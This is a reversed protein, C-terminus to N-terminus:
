DRSPRRKEPGRRASWCMWCAARSSSTRYLPPSSRGWSGSPEGCRFWVEQRGLSRDRPTALPRWCGTRRTSFRRPPTPRKVSGASRPAATRAAFNTHTHALTPPELLVARGLVENSVRDTIQLRDEPSTFRISQLQRATEAHVNWRTFTARKDQVAALVLGALRHVDRDSLCTATWFRIAGSCGIQRAWAATDPGVFHRAPARWQETLDALSHTQKHPRDTLTAQDRLKLVAAANPERGHRARFDKVLRNKIAEIAAGRQSFEACLGDGVGAVAYRPVTSHRRSRPEWVTGVAQSLRDMLLGQHLEPLAVTARFLARSDLTRWKNDDPAQVRNAVVVHTHLHPDNARTDWHDFAAGLVGRVGVQAVGNTGMRTMFVTQEAYALADFIAQHHASVIQAQLGGDAVAWLASVSKPVSFTLDFGAVAKGVANGARSREAGVTQTTHRHSGGFPQGAPSASECSPTRVLPTAAARRQARGLPECTVPDCAMGLLRFLQEETVRSGSTLGRGGDLGALGGGLWRGPPTGSEAYYRTLANSARRDGDGAAVSLMLYRYGTRGSIRSISVTVPCAEKRVQEVVLSVATGFLSAM